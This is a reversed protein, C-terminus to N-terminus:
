NVCLHKPVPREPAPWPRAAWNPLLLHGAVGRWLPSGQGRQGQSRLWGLAISFM